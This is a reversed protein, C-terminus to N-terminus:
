MEALVKIVSVREIEDLKAKMLYQSRRRDNPDNEDYQLLSHDTWSTFCLSLHSVEEDDDGLDLGLDLDEFVTGVRKEEGPNRSRQYEQELELSSGEKNRFDDTEGEILNNTPSKPILVLPPPMPRKGTATSPSSRRKFEASEPISVNLPLRSMRQMIDQVEDVDDSEGGIEQRQEPLITLSTADLALEVVNPNDDTRRMGDSEAHIETWTEADTGFVDGLPDHGVTSTMHAAVHDDPSESLPAYEGNNLQEGEDSDDQSRLFPPKQM